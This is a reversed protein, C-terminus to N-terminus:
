SVTILGRVKIQEILKKQGSRRKLDTKDAIRLVEQKLKENENNFRYLDAPTLNISDKEKQFDLKYGLNVLINGSIHEFLIIEEKTLEHKYKNYNTHIVPKILNSWM